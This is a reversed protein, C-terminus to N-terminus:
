RNLVQLKLEHSINVGLMNVFELQRVLLWLFSIGKENKLETCNIAKYSLKIDRINTAKNEKGVDM